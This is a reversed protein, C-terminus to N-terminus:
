PRLLRSSASAGALLLAFGLLGISAVRGQLEDGTQPLAARRAGRAPVENTPVDPKDPSAPDIPGVPDTPEDPDVPDDGQPEFVIDYGLAFRPDDIGGGEAFRQDYRWGYTIYRGDDLWRACCNGNTQLVGLSGLRADFFRTVEPQRGNFFPAYLTVAVKDTPGVVVRGCNYAVAGLEHSALTTGDQSFAFLCVAEDDWSKSLVYVTGEHEAADLLREYRGLDAGQPVLHGVRSAPDDDAMFSKSRFVEQAAHAEEGELLVRTVKTPDDPDVVNKYYTREGVFPMAHNCQYFYWTGDPAEIPETLSVAQGTYWAGSLKGTGTLALGGIPVQVSIEPSLAGGFLVFSGEAFVVSASTAKDLLDADINADFEVLSGQAKLNVCAAEVGTDLVVRAYAEPSLTVNSDAQLTVHGGCLLETGEAVTLRPPESSPRESPDFRVVVTGGDEDSRVVELSIGSWGAEANEYFNTSPSTAPTVSDGAYLMCGWRDGDEATPAVGGESDGYHPVDGDPHVLEILQDHKGGHLNTHATSGQEDLEAQVRYLRFGSSLEHLSSDVGWLFRQNGAAHDYQLVYYSSYRDLPHDAVVIIGGTQLEDDDTFPALDLSVGGDQTSSGVELGGRTARVGDDTVEVWTVQTQEDLWGLMWKSFGNHDGMDDFMMDSTQIGGGTGGDPGPAAYYDPLGMTHGCEHILTRMGLATNSPRHLQIRSGAALGDFLLTEGADDKLDLVSARSWWTTGWGTDGGAFRITVCDIVGDGNGDYDGYDLQDDLARLAEEYLEDVDEEYFSRPHQAEYDFAEGTIHLKGYSSRRYYASLSEYPFTGMDGEILNQLAELSDGEAFGMPEHESDGPFSVRLALLRAEGTKPMTGRTDFESTQGDSASTLELLLPDTTREFSEQYAIREDLTGEVAFLELEEESPLNPNGDQALAHVPASVLGGALVFALLLRRLCGQYRSGVLCCWGMQPM